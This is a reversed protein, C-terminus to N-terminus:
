THFSPDQQLWRLQTDKLYQQLQDDTGYPTPSPKQYIDPLPPHIPLYDTQQDGLIRGSRYQLTRSLSDFNGLLLRPRGNGNLNNMERFQQLWESSSMGCSIPYVVVDNLSSSSLDTSYYLNNNDQPPPPPPPPTNEVVISEDVEIGNFWAADEPLLPASPIPASYNTPISFGSDEDDNMSLKPVIEKIPSFCCAKSMEQIGVGNIVWASLSPPGAAMPSGVDRSISIPSEKGKVVVAPNHNQPSVMSTARRLVEDSGGITSHSVVVGGEKNHIPASNYRTLPKFLIVEKEEEEEEEGTASAANCKMDSNRIFDGIIRKAATIARYTRHFMSGSSTSSFDFSEHVPAMPSFGRLEFDEPCLTTTSSFSHQFEIECIGDNELRKLLLGLSGVFYSLSAKEEESSFTSSASKVQDFVTVLWEMFILVSPLLSFPSDKFSSSTCRDVLRGMFIFASCFAYVRLM